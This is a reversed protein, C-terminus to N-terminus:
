AQCRPLTRLICVRWVQSPAPRGRLRVRGALQTSKHARARRKSWLLSTAWVAAPPAANGNDAKNSGVAGTTSMSPFRSVTGRRGRPHRRVCANGRMARDDGDAAMFRALRQWTERGLVLGRHLSKPQLGFNALTQRSRGCRALVRALKRDVGPRNQGFQAGVETLMAAFRHMPGSRVKSVGQVYKRVEVRMADRRYRWTHGNTEEHQARRLGPEVRDFNCRYRSLHHQTRGSEPRNSRVHMSKRAMGQHVDGQVWNIKPKDRAVDIQNAGIANVRPRSPPLIQPIRGSKTGHQRPMSWTPSIEVVSPGLEASNPESELLSARHGGLRARHEGFKWRFPCVNVFHHRHEGFNSRSRGVEPRHKIVERQLAGSESSKPRHQRSKTSRPRARRICSEICCEPGTTPTTLPNQRQSPQSIQGM